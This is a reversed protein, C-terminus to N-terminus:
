HRPGLSVASSASTRLPRLPTVPSGRPRGRAVLSRV